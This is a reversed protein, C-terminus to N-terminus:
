SGDAPLVVSLKQLRYRTECSDFGDRWADDLFKALELTLEDRNRYEITKFSGFAWTMFQDAKLESQQSM